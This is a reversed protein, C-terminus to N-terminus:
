SSSVVLSNNELKFNVEETVQLMDLIHSINEFRKVYVSFEVKKIAENTYFVDINYWRSLDELIMELPVSKYMFVGDKWATYASVDVEQLTTKGKDVIAQQGPELVVTNGGSSLEISGECLTIYQKESANYAKVNFATGLVRIKNKGSHVFFPKKENKAVEFFAEGRLFVSREAGLFQEPYRLKSDANLWVKTGDPLTLRYEGGRPTDLVNYLIERNSGPSQVEYHLESSNVHINATSAAIITDLDSLQVQQGDALTLNAQNSGPQAQNMTTDTSQKGPKDLMHIVFFLGIVIAISAALSGIRWLRRGNTKPTISPNIKAGVREWAKDANFRKLKISYEKEFEQSRLRHYLSENEVSQRKWASLTENEQGDLGMSIDKTILQVIQKSDIQNDDM